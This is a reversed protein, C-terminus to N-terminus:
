YEQTPRWRTKKLYAANSRQYIVRQYRLTSIAFNNDRSKIMEHIDCSRILKTPMSATSALNLLQQFASENGTLARIELDDNPTQTNGNSNEYDTPKRM